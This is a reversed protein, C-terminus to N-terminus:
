ERNRRAASFRVIQSIICSIVLFSFIIALMYLWEFLALIIPKSNIYGAIVAFFASVLLASYYDDPMLGSWKMHWWIYEPRFKKLGYAPNFVFWQFDWAVSMLFFGSLIELEGALSWELGCFFPFHFFVLLLSNMALHYGTLPKGSMVLSFVKALLNGPKPRWCPLKGAWGNEGEIQIETIALVVAIIFLYASFAFTFM